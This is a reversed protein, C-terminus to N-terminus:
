TVHSATGPYKEYARADLMKKIEGLTYDLEEDASYFHPSIRIGAKPRYDVLIDRELLLRSLEYGHPVDIAVTGGREEPNRPATTRFGYEAAAEILRRTQRMSKARIKDIGVEQLIKVGSEAAYLAPIAPTGHLFRYATETYDMAGIEFAFPNRHAMWGTLRPELHKARDPRVYLFAVGPGGCLWKLTGGVAFDVDLAKVDVPVTGTSQYTDLLVLAGVAHAREIIAKVNVIYASRFLVHSIPILATTEDIAALVEELPISIGNHSKVTEVRAGVREQAHYLYQLSPFEMDVMVIKNRPGSFDLGSTVIAQAMTVNPQTTVEGPAAGILKGIEDGLAGPMEWWGEAWARVGRAAWTDAYERVKDYVRRPMAGLSNSIMYTTKQLIPFEDRWKLLEDM